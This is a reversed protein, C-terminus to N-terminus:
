TNELNDIIKSVCIQISDQETDVIIDADKPIEYDMDIGTINKIKKTESYIIM